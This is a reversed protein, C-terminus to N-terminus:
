EMSLVKMPDVKAARRAPLYSALVAAGALVGIAVLTFGIPLQAGLLSLTSLVAQRIIYALPAGLLLGLGTLVLGTRAVRGVVQGVRAGLAVRIGIERREQVVTHAMVGYIGMASLAMALMGLATVFGEIFVIVALQQRIHETLTKMSAVPLDPDVSWVGKRVDSALAGPTGATRLAFFPARVPHQAVPLYIGTDTRGDLPIRSQTINGVVGVVERSAGFVDLRKGLPDENPFFRRAFEQNVVVVPAADERDSEQLYRGSRIPIRLTKFYDPNVSQWKVQPRESQDAAEHGAVQFPVTPNEMTRPLSSMLAVGEVGPMGALTRLLEAQATRLGADGRYRYEPLSVQFTLLGAPEFGPAASVVSGLTRGLLGAGTVLALAVAVQGVVFARRVRRRRRSSTGGRGGEGLSSRLDGRVAHLAPALGFFIGAAVAVAVTAALTPIDLTPRLSPPVVAPIAARLARIVYFAFVTGLAGGVSALLVSETLLQRVIRARGAGLATRVAVEKMRMEARGLLLNAVNAGAIAVGFLSVAILLLIFKKDTTSPFSSRASQVLVGWGRNADPYQTELRGDLATLEAQAREMTAGPRLRAFVMFGKLARDDKQTLDTPRFAEVGAPIMEFGEPMVGVITSPVGDLTVTRGLIQPDGDFHRRWYSYTIVLVNPAGLAGEGPRFTRGLMPPVHLVDLLNATGDVVQIEEPQDGGTLNVSEVDYAAMGTFSTAGDSLDRFNPISVGAAQDVSEGHRLEQILVLGNQDGFPLPTLLFASALSFMATAAAIGFALSLAAVLSVVPNKLLMRWGFHLDQLFSSM